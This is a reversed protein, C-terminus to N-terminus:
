NSCCSCSSCFGCCGGELICRCLLLQTWFRSFCQLKWLCDFGVLATCCACATLVVSSSYCALSTSTEYDLWLVASCASQSLSFPLSNADASLEYTGKYCTSAKMSIVSWCRCSHYHSNHCTFYALQVKGCRQRTQWVSVIPRVRRHLSAIWLPAIHDLSFVQYLSTFLDGAASKIDTIGQEQLLLAYAEAEQYGATDSEDDEFPKYTMKLHLHGESKKGPAWSQLCFLLKPSLCSESPM